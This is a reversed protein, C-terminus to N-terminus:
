VRRTHASQVNSPSPPCGCPMWLGPTSPSRSSLPRNTWSSRLGTGQGGGEKTYLSRFSPGLGLVQDDRGLLLDRRSVAGRPAVPGPHRGPRPVQAEPLGQVVELGLVVAAWGGM